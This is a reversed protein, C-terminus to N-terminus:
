GPLPLLVRLAGAEVEFELPLELTEPEGDVAARLGRPAADITLREYPRKEWRSPRWGPALYLYLRGEDLREREGLSFLEVNYDNNAVLAIQADVPAGDVSLRVQKPHRIALLVARLQALVNRRGRRRERRHVLEAYLGLSVNNLFLREGV